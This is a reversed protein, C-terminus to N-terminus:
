PAKELAPLVAGIRRSETTIAIASGGRGGGQRVRQCLNPDGVLAPRAVDFHGNLVAPYAPPPSRILREYHSGFEKAVWTVQDSNIEALRVWGGMAEVAAHILPDDFVLAQYQGVRVIANHVKAWAENARDALTGDIIRVIDAPKPPHMGNAPDGLHIGFARQIDPLDFRSLATFWLAAAKGTLSGRSGYVDMVADLASAFPKYDAQNM